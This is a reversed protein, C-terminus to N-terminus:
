WDRNEFNMSMLSGRKVANTVLQSFMVPLGGFSRKRQRRTMPHLALVLSARLGLAFQIINTQGTKKLFRTPM